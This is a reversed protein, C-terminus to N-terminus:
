VLKPLELISIMTQITKVEANVDGFFCVLGGGLRTVAVSTRFPPVIHGGFNPVASICRAGTIPAFLQDQTAVGSLMTAKVNMQKPFLLSRKREGADDDDDDSDQNASSPYTFTGECSTTLVESTSNSEHSQYVSFHCFNSKNCVHKCRRYYDGCFHWPKGSLIQLLWATREGEGQILCKGGYSTFSHLTGLGAASFVKEGTKNMGKDDLHLFMVSDYLGSELMPVLRAGLSARLIDFPLNHEALNTRLKSFYCSNTEDILGFGTVILMRPTPSVTQAYAAQQEPTLRATIPNVTVGCDCIQELGMRADTATSLHGEGCVFHASAAAGTGGTPRETSDICVSPKGCTQCSFEAKDPSLTKARAIGVSLEQKAKQQSALHGLKPSQPLKQPGAETQFPICVHKHQKWHNKQCQANCYYVKHCRSCILDKEPQHSCFGCKKAILPRSYKVDVERDM